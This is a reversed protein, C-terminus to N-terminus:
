SSLTPTRSTRPGSSNSSSAGWPSSRTVRRSVRLQCWHQVPRRLQSRGSRPARSALSALFAEQGEPTPTARSERSGIPMRRAGRRSTRCSGSLASESSSREGSGIRRRVCVGSRVSMRKGRASSRSPKASRRRSGGDRRSRRYSKSKESHGNGSPSAQGTGAAVRMWLGRTVRSWSSSPGKLTPTAMRTQTSSSGSAISRRGCTAARRMRRLFATAMLPGCSLSAGSTRWLLRKSAM